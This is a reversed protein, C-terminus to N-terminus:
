RGIAKAVVGVARTVNNLAEVITAQTKMEAERSKKWDEFARGEFFSKAVSPSTALADPM